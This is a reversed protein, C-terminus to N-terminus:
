LTEIKHKARCNSYITSNFHWLEEFNRKNQFALFGLSILQIAVMFIIGGLIFSHPSLKYAEAVAGAIWHDLELNLSALRKFNNIIHIAAWTLSYFSPILLALGPFVFFLFPRFIFGSMLSQIINRWFKISSKRKRVSKNKTKVYEWSLEAPVEVIRARLVKAKYIIEPNINFDTAKLDLKKLFAGDYARVMGTINTIRDSFRDRAAMMSLLRNAWITFKKRLWPVGKIGGGKIFPSAIVIKARTERIKTLMRGIHHPAYSLDVDLVVVYDGDCRGFAYRLAQGLRFNYYHHLVYGNEMDKIFAEALDGTSDKSGDNVIILEWNYEHEISKMYECIARLSNEIIKEENYAPVVISVFPKKGHKFNQTGKNM